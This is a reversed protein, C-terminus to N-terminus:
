YLVSKAVAFEANTTFIGYKLSDKTFLPYDTLVTIASVNGLVKKKAIDEIAIASKIPINSPTNAATKFSEIISLSVKNKDTNPIDTGDKKEAIIPTLSLSPIDIAQQIFLKIM